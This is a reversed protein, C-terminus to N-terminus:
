KVTLTGEMGAERHGPVTCFFTYSGAALEASVSTKGQAVLDSKAIESGKSEIAVDHEVQAPNDFDITVEGPKSALAKEDYALATTSAVLNLTGGPGKIKGPPAAGGGAAKGGAKAEGGAEAGSAKEGTPEGAAAHEESALKANRREQEDRANLVAFTTTGIVLLLFGLATMRMLGKSPFREENRLGFFSVVLAFVVLTSGLVYFLTENM